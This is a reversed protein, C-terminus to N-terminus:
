DPTDEIFKDLFQNAFESSIGVDPVFVSNVDKTTIIGEKNIENNSFTSEVTTVNNIPIENFLTRMNYRLSIEFSDKITNKKLYEDYIETQPTESNRFSYSIIGIRGIAKESFVSQIFQKSKEYFDNKIDKNKELDEDNLYTVFDIREPMITASYHINREQRFNKAVYPSLSLFLKNSEESKTFFDLKKTVKELTLDPNRLIDLFFLALHMRYIFENKM